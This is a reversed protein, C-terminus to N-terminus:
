PPAGAAQAPGAGDLHTRVLVELHEPVPSLSSPSLPPSWDLQMAGLRQRILQLDWVRVGATSSAVALQRGDPSFGLDYVEEFRTPDLTVLERGTAPEVVRVVARSHALALLTGEASFAMVGPYDGGGVRALRHAPQWSGVRWFQYEEGTSTVLWANDPSFAVSTSGATPLSRIKRGSGAEWLTAGSGHWNGSAVWRGDPSIAVDHFQPQSLPAMVERGASQLIWGQRPGFTEVVPRQGEHDFVLKRAARNTSTSLPEFPGIVIEV